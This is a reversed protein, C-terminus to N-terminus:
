NVGDHHSRDNAEEANSITAKLESIVHLLSIILPPPPQYDSIDIMAVFAVTTDTSGIISVMVVAAAAGDADFKIVMSTNVRLLHGASTSFKEKCKM